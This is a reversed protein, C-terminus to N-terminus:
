ESRIGGQAAGSAPSIVGESVAQGYGRFAMMDARLREAEAFSMTPCRKEKRRKEDRRNMSNTRSDELLETLVEDPLTGKATKRVLERIKGSYSYMDMEPYKENFVGDDIFDNFEDVKAEIAQLLRKMRVDGIGFEDAVCTLVLIPNNELVNMIERYCKDQERKNYSKM